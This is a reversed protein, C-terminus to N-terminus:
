TRLFLDSTQDQRSPAQTPRQAIKRRDSGSRRTWRWPASGSRRAANLSEAWRDPAGDPVPEGSGPTVSAASEAAEMEGALSGPTVSAASEAAEMEGALESTGLVPEDPAAETLASGCRGSGGPAAADTVADKAATSGNGAVDIVSATSQM